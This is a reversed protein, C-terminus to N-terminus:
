QRDLLLAICALRAPCIASGAKLPTNSISENNKIGYSPELITNSEICGDKHGRNSQDAIPAKNKETM